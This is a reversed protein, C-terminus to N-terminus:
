KRNEYTPMNLRKWYYPKIYTKRLELVFHFEDEL